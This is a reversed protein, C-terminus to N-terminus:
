SNFAAEIVPHRYHFGTAELVRPAASSSSLITEEAMEGFALRLAAPPITFWAPRHVAKALASTFEANTAARPATINVPGSISENTMCHLVAAAADPLSIWSMMRSGDGIKGGLGFRFAPLMKAAAGGSLSLIVGFRLFVLRSVSAIPKAAEEWERCVEALFGPGQPSTEDVIGNPHPGYYGVASASLFIRPPNKSKLFVSSLLNTSEVRSSRIEAKRKATWRGEGVNAGSLNIVADIGATQAPDLVGTKPDWFVTNSRQDAEHRVLIVTDYGSKQLSQTLASGLFGSAGSILVKVKAM